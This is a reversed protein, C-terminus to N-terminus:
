PLVKLPSLRIMMLSTLSMLVCPYTFLLATHAVMVPHPNLGDFVDVAVAKGEHFPVNDLVNTTMGFLTPCVVDFFGDM